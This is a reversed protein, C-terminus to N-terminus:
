NGAFYSGECMLFYLSVLFCSGRFNIDFSFMKEKFRLKPLCVFLFSM